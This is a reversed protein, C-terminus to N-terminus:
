LLSLLLGIILLLSFALQLKATAEDLQAYSQTGETRYRLISHVNKISLPLSILTLLVSWPTLHTVCLGILWLYPMVVEAVYIGVAVTRGTLMPFTAIQAREDTEIDRTNNAHLIAITILGVPVALWLVEPVLQGGVIYTTGLMPLVAYCFLIVVDGLAHYKLIPYLLSLAIGALGIWLLPLGTAIVMACGMVVALIQLCVSLRMAEKLTFQGSTLIKSGYTDERDVGRKYDYYDSWVNGAAHVLVINVVAAICLWWNIAHTNVFTWVTAVLVPMASAPFSWPRTALIWDKTTHQKKM